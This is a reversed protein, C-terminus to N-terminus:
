LARIAEVPPKKAALLVPLFTAVFSFVISIGLIILISLPGFDFLPIGVLSRMMERNLITCVILTTITSLVFCIGAIIGSESYFVKFVDSGRAGVARLIGIDKKKSAISVSIFNLLLLGAFVGTVGGITLFVTKLYSVMETYMYLSDYVQNTMQFFYSGYDTLFLDIDSQSYDTVAILYSYRADSPSVYDTETKDVWSYSEYLYDRIANRTTACKAYFGEETNIFGKVKYTKVRGTYDKSYYKDPLNLEAEGFSPEIKDVGGFFSTFESDAIDTGYISKFLNKSFTKVLEISEPSYNSAQLYESFSWWSSYGTGEFAARVKESNAYNNSVSYLSSAFAVAPVYSMGSDNSIVGQLYTKLSTLELGQLETNELEQRAKNTDGSVYWDDPATGGRSIYGEILGIVNSLYYLSYGRKAFKKLVPIVLAKDDEPNFGDPYEAGQSANRLRSYAAAAEKYQHEESPLDAQQFFASLDPDFSAYSNADRALMNVEYFYESRFYEAFYDQYSLLVEDDALQPADISNFSADYFECKDKELDEFIATVDYSYEQEIRSYNNSIEDETGFVIGHPCVTRIYYSDDSTYEGYKDIFSPSVFCTTYLSNELFAGFASVENSREETSQIAPRETKLSDYKSPIPGFDYVGTIKYYDRGYKGNMSIELQKGIIDNYSSVTGFSGSNKFYEFAYNSIAIQNENVPQQGYVSFGKSQIWSASADSFGCFARFPSYYDRAEGSPSGVYFAAYNGGYPEGSAGSYVGIFKDGNNKNLDDLEAKGFYDNGFSEWRDSVRMTEGTADDITEQARTFRYNKVIAESTRDLNEMGVALSYSPNYLMLTSAVGFLTMSVVSLFITFVLRVPKTKLGSAGMKFARSFPMRSRIFKTEEGNYEKMDVNTTENFVKNHNDENIRVAKKAAEVNAEGASILVEGKQKKILKYIEKFDAESLEASDKIDIINGNVVSVNKNLTEPAVYQKTKDSIIKGDKLEIIRDGYEEAFDQDHSVIIVLKKESLKKLIELVQKGTVSDLAGTPEDAMIIEPDKILARAIAIRQKQGGSLTNPKRKNFGELGVEKLLADVAAKDNKKGQLQLALAINQEINFENLINYEQFIFGIYTNRYSDFDSQTFDKSSRGKVIVEGSDPRDLGGIMNLLTSKGSGSKGLLFVLGKEPFDVNLGDLAKTIVGGKTKYTKYLNRIELM